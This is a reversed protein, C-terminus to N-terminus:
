FYRPHDVGKVRKKFDYGVFVEHSGSNHNKLDTTTFDYAYGVRFRNNWHYSIMADWSDGSRYTGGVWVKEFFFFSLNVDYELPANAVYKVLGGPKLKVASSLPIILGGNIFIHSRQFSNTEENEYIYKNEILRPMAAGIFFRDHDIYIGAGANPLFANETEYPIEDDIQDVPNSNPWNIRQQRVEGQLGLALRASGIRIRYAYSLNFNYNETIGIQDRMLFAGIAMNYGAFPAHGSLSITKPAGEFGAWQNRYFATVSGADRSGAYAPNVALQNWMYQTFMPDQQAMAAFAFGQLALLVIIKKLIKM